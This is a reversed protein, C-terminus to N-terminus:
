NELCYQIADEMSSIGRYMKKVIIGLSDIIHFDGVFEVIKYSNVRIDDGDFVVEAKIM